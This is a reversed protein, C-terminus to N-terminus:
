AGWDVIVSATIGTNSSFSSCGFPCNYEIYFGELGTVRAMTQLRVMNLM